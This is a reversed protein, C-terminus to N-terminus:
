VNPAAAVTIATEKDSKEQRSHHNYIINDYIKSLNRPTYCLPM